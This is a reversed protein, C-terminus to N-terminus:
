VESLAHRVKVVVEHERKVSGDAARKQLLVLKDEGEDEGDLDKEPLIHDILVFPAAVVV